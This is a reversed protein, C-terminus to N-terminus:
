LIYRVEFILEVAIRSLALESCYNSTEMTEQCKSMRRIPTNNLIALITTLSRGTVLDYVHDADVYVTM